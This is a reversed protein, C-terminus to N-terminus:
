GWIIDISKIYIAGKASRLGIYSYSGTFTYTYEGATNSITGVKTLSNGYMDKREFAKNSAYIDVSSGQSTNSEFTITISQCAKGVFTCLIGYNNKSNIQIGSTAACLAEYSAGDETTVKHTEYKSSGATLGFFSQDLTHKVAEKVVTITTTATFTGDFTLTLTVETGGVADSAATVKGSEDVTIGADEPSVAYTVTYLMEEHGYPMLYYAPAITEGPKIEYSDKEYAVGTLEDAKINFKCSATLGNLATATITVTTDATADEKITVLGNEDVTALNEDSSTWKVANYADEPEYNVELQYTVNAVIDLESVNLTMDTLEPRHTKEYYIEVQNGDSYYAIIEIYVVGNDLVYFTDQYSTTDAKYGNALLLAAYDASLDKYYTDAIYLLDYKGSEQDIYYDDGFQMFPIYQYLYLSMLSKEEATWDTNTTLKDTRVDSFRSIAFITDYTNDDVMFNIFVVHSADYATGVTITYEDGFFDEETYSEVSVIFGAAELLAGAAAVKDGELYTYACDPYHYGESEHEESFLYPYKGEGLDPLTVNIGLDAIIKNAPFADLIDYEGYNVYDVYWNTDIGTVDLKGYGEHRTIEILFYDDVAYFNVTLNTCYEDDGFIYGYDEVTYWEDDNACKLGSVQNVKSYLDAEITSGNTESIARIVYESYAYHYFVQYDLNYSLLSPFTFNFGDLFDAVITDLTEPTVITGGGNSSSSSTSTSTSTSTSSGSSIASSSSSNSSSSDGYASSSKSTNEGSSTNVNSASTSDSSQESTTTSVVSQESDSNSTVVSSSESGTTNCAALSVSLLLTLMKIVSKKM